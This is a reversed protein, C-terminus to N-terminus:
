KNAFVTRDRLGLGLGAIDQAQWAWTSCSWSEM